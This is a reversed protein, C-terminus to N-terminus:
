RCQKAFRDQEVFVQQATDRFVALGTETTTSISDLKQRVENRAKEASAWTVQPTAFASQLLDTRTEIESWQDPEVGVLKRQTAAQRLNDYARALSLRARECTENQKCGTVAILALAIIIRRM